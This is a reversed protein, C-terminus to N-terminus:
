SAKSIGRKLGRSASGGELSCPICNVTGYGMGAESGGAAM